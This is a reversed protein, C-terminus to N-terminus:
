SLSVVKEGELKLAVELLPRLPRQHSLIFLGAPKGASVTRGGWRLLNVNTNLRIIKSMFVHSHAFLGM